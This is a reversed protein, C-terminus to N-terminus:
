VEARQERRQTKIAIRVQRAGYIRKMARKTKAAQNTHLEFGAPAGASPKPATPHPVQHGHRRGPGKKTPHPTRQNRLATGQM